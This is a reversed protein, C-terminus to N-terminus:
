SLDPPYCTHTPGPICGNEESTPCEYHTPEIEVCYKVSTPDECVIDNTCPGVAATCPFAGSCGEYSVPINGKVTGQTTKIESIEFTNVKLEDINLKMKKM